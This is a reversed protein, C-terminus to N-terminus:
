MLKKGCKECNYRYETEYMDQAEDTLTENNDDVSVKVRAKERTVTRIFVDNGCKCRLYM